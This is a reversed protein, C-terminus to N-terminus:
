LLTFSTQFLKEIDRIHESDSVFLIIHDEPEIVVDHHAMIVKSKRVLAGFTAGSPLKIKDLRQGIVRSTEPTGRAVIEIAEATRRRLSHVQAVNGQRVHRLLSSVTAQQPSIAIDIEGGEILDVFTPNNILAMVKKAGLRKALIASMINTKDDNTVACFVDVDEINESILLERDTADGLLVIAEELQEALNAATKENNEIIKILFQKELTEALGKGIHGGGAIIVHRYPNEMRRLERITTRIHSRAAVFFVEDDEEIITNGDPMLAQGRRYITAVRIDVSPLHERIKYIANGVLPGGLRAKVAVLQVKGEAFDLVQLAGPYELLHSVFNTVLQEPSILVDVAIKENGFLQAEKLYEVNRVRAIKTPVQFLVEAIQCALMNTEDSNTVAILLEATEIGANRLMSPYAGHGHVTRIDIKKLLTELRSADTDIVTIDNDEHVLHEALSGGVQGAGLIIIHM